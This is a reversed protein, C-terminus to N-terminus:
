APIEETPAEVTVAPQEFVGDTFLLGIYPEKTENTVLVCTSSTLSEALELSSAYIVNVVEQNNLVAYRKM